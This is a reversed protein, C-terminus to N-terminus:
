TPRVCIPSFGVPRWHSAAWQQGVFEPVLPLWPQAAALAAVYALWGDVGLTLIRPVQPLIDGPRGIQETLAARGYAVGESNM